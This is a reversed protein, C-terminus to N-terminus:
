TAERGVYWRAARTKGRVHIQREVKLERLLVKLENRPAAPLVQTFEEFPAGDEGSAQIHRLLLAKKTERDLGRRRTYEGPRGKLVYFRNALMVRQRGIREIAGMALLEPLRDRLAEPSRQGRRIADLVVLDEVSLSRQTEAGLRELFRVFAEDQVTGHLILAVQYADSRSFDPPLKGERLAAQFM